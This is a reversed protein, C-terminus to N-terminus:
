IVIDIPGDDENQTTNYKIKYKDEKILLIQSAEPDADALFQKLITELDDPNM